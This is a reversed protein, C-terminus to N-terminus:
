FKYGFGVNFYIPYMDFSVTKFSSVFIDNLGWKLTANVTLHNLAEWSVGAQVGWQFRRLDSDFDYSARAGDTFEYKDGTPDGERLYGDTVYGNFQNRMAWALYPGFHCDIHKNCHVSALIPVILQSTSYKTSVRGTWRGTLEEGDNLITMGYNKVTAETNMGKVEFGFGVTVGWRSAPLWKTGLVGITLNLNPDFHEIKRIEAPIPLPSAGGINVGAQLQFDIGWPHLNLDARAAAPVIALAAAIIIAKINM